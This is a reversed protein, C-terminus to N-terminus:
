QGSRDCRYEFFKASCFPWAVFPLVFPLPAWGRVRPAAAALIGVGRNDDAVAVGGREPQLCPLRDSQAVEEGHSAVVGRQHGPLHAVSRFLM